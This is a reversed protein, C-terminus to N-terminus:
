FVKDISKKGPNYDEFSKYVDKMDNPYETLTKPDKFHKLGVEECRNIFYQYKAEYPDKVYLIIKQKHNLLNFLANTKELGSRRVIM